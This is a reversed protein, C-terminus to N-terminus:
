GDKAAKEAKKKLQMRQFYMKNYEKRYEPRREHFRKQLEKAREKNKDYWEISKQKYYLYHEKRYIAVKKLDCKKCVTRYYFGGKKLKHRYYESELKNIGCTKCKKTVELM